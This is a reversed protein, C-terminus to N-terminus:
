EGRNWNESVVAPLWETCGNTNEWAETFMRECVCVWKKKQLVLIFESKFSAPSKNALSLFQMLQRLCFSSNVPLLIYVVPSMGETKTEALMRWLGSSRWAEWM